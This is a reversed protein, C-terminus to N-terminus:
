DLKHEYNIMCWRHHNWRNNVRSQFNKRINHLFLKAKTQNVLSDVLCFVSSPVCHIEEAKFILEAYDILNCSLQPTLDVIQFQDLTDFGNSSRWSQLDIPVNNQSSWQSHTVILRPQHVVRQYLSQAQSLDLPLRFGTYRQSFPVEFSGYWQEEWLPCIRTQDQNIFYLDPGQIRTLNHMEVYREIENHDGGCVFVTINPDDKFLCNATDFLPTQVPVHLHYCRYAFWRILASVVILDGFSGIPVFLLNRDFM